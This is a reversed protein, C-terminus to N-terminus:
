SHITQLPACVEEAPLRLVAKARTRTVFGDGSLIKVDQRHQAFQPTHLSPQPSTDAKASSADSGVREDNAAATDVNNVADGVEESELCTCPLQHSSVSAM